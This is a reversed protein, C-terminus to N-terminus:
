SPQGFHAGLKKKIERTVGQWAEASILPTNEFAARLEEIPTEAIKESWKSLADSVFMQALPGVRWFDMLERVFDINTKPKQM